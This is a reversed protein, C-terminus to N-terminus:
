LQTLNIRFPPPGLNSKNLLVIHEEVRGDESVNFVAQYPSLPFMCIFIGLRKHNLIGASVCKRILEYRTKRVYAVERWSHTLSISVMWVDLSIM